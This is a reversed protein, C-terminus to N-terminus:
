KKWRKKLYWKLTWLFAYDIADDYDRCEKTHAGSTPVDIKVAYEFHTYDHTVPISITEITVPAKMALMMRLKRKTTLKPRKM